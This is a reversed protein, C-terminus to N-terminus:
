IRIQNFEAPGQKISSAADKARNEPSLMGPLDFRSLTLLGARHAELLMAKFEDLSIEPHARAFAEYADIIWVRTETYRIAEPVARAARMAKTAFTELTWAEVPVPEPKPPVPVPEPKPKPKPRPRPKPAPKPGVIGPEIVGFPEAPKGWIHALLRNYTGPRAQVAAPAPQRFYAKLEAETFGGSWEGPKLGAPTQRGIGFVATPGIPRGPLASPQLSFVLPIRKSEDKMRGGEDKGMPPIVRKGELEAPVVAGSRLWARWNGLARMQVWETAQPSLGFVDRGGPGPFQEEQFTLIKSWSAHTHPDFRYWFEARDVLARGALLSRTRSLKGAPTLPPNYPDAPGMASKRYKRTKATIPRLPEGYADFGQALDSDKAKLGLDVIWSWYMLQVSKPYQRLEYPEIDKITYGAPM